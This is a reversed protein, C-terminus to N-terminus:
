EPAGVGNSLTQRHARVLAAAELMHRIFIAPIPPENGAAACLGDLMGEAAAIEDDSVLPAPKSMRKNIARQQEDMGNM